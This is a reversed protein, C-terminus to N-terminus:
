RPRIARTFAAEHRAPGEDLVLRLYRTGRVSQGDVRRALSCFLIESGNLSASHRVEGEPSSSARFIM